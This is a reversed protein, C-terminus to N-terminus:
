ETASHLKKKIDQVKSRTTYLQLKCFEYKRETDQKSKELKDNLQNKVIKDTELQVIIKQQRNIEQEFVKERTQLRVVEYRWSM